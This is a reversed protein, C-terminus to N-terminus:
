RKERELVLEINESLSRIGANWRRGKFDSEISGVEETAYPYTTRNGLRTFDRTYEMATEYDNRDLSLVKAHLDQLENYDDNTM